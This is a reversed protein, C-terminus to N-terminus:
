QQLPTREAPVKSAAKSQKFAFASPVAAQHLHWDDNEVSAVFYSDLFHLSCMRTAKSVNFLAGENRRIAVILMQCIDRDKPIRHYSVEYIVLKSRADMIKGGVPCRRLCDGLANSREPLAEPVKQM